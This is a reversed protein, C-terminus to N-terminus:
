KKVKNQANPQRAEKLEPNVESVVIGVPLKTFRPDALRLAQVQV